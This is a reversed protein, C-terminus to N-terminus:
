AEANPPSTSSASAPPDVDDAAPVPEWDALIVLPEFGDFPEPVMDDGRKVRVGALRRAVWMAALNAATSDARVGRMMERLVMGTQREVEVLERAPVRVLAAEDYVWWDSGYREHDDEHFRFRMAPLLKM